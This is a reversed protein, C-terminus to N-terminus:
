GCHSSFCLGRENGSCSNPLDQRRPQSRHRGVSTEHQRVWSMQEWIWLCRLSENLETLDTACQETVTVWALEVILWLRQQYSAVDGCGPRRGQTLLQADGYRACPEQLRLRMSGWPAGKVGSRSGHYPSCLRRSRLGWWRPGQCPRPKM